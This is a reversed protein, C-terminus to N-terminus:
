RNRILFALRGGLLYHVALLGGDIAAVAPRSPAILAVPTVLVLAEVALRVLGRVAVPPSPKPDGPIRFTGWLAAAALPLAIALSWALAGDHASWGWLGLLYLAALELGFRLTLNGARLAERWM